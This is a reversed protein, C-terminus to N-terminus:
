LFPTLKLQHYEGGANASLPSINYLITYPKIGYLNITGSIPIFRLHIDAMERIENKLKASPRLIGILLDDKTRVWSVIESLMRRIEDGTHVDLM